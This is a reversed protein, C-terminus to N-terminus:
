ESNNQKRNRAATLSRSKVSGEAMNRIRAKILKKVLGPPLPKDAAFRVAGKGTEYGKLDIKFARLASGPYFSCHNSAAAMAVVFRGKLRFSPVGYSICEELGPAAAHIAKRLKQLATRHEPQLASLYGAFPKKVETSKKRAM